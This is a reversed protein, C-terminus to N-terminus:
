QVRLLKGVTEDTQGISNKATVKYLYVGNAIQDGFRDRGDWQLKLDTGEPYNFGAYGQIPGIEKIMRGSATFIKIEISADSSLEFTFNTNEKFPNPWNLVDDLRLEDDSEIVEFDAEIRKYNNSNDWGWVEINHKGTKLDYLKRESIGRTYSDRNYIFEETMSIELTGDIIARIDHGIEGTLNVGNTDFMEVFLTPDTTVMDGDQWNERDFYIRVEPPTTDDLSAPIVSIAVSDKAGAADSEDNYAYVQIWGSSAGLKVDRPVIFRTELNGDITSVRGRFITGGHVPYDLPSTNVEEHFIYTLTDASDFVTIIAEGNFDDVPDGSTSLIAGGITASSLAILSDPNISTIEAGMKPRAPTLTPDGLCHYAKANTSFSNASKALFLSEGLTKPNERDFFNQYFANSFNFNADPGTKRTAAIIAIAGNRDRLMIEPHSDNEARDFHGWSCTAAVFIPLKDGCEILDNDRTDLLVTEHCWVHANGHGVFGVLLSGKNINEILERTAMPKRRSGSGPDYTTPYTGIYIRKLKMYGPLHDTAFEEAQQIHKRDSPLPSDTNYEDDALITMRTRWAGMEAENDYRNLKDLYIEVDKNSHATIRGSIMEPRGSTFTVFWDDFCFSGSEYVPIWNKDSATMINRYDYDGDGIYFVTSPLPHAWSTSTYKLFDRIATPDFLGWSFERYVDEIDVVIINTGDRDELYTELEKTASMFDPHTIIICDASLTNDRLGNPYEPAGFGVVQIKLPNLFNGDSIAIMRRPQSIQSEVRITDNRSYKVTDFDQVDFIYPDTLGAISVELVGNETFKDFDIRGSSTELKRYYYFNYWDFLTRSETYFSLVNSGTHALGQEIDVGHVSSSLRFTDVPVNNLSLRGTRSSNSLTKIGLWLKTPRTIDLNELQFSISYTSYESMENSYWKIGSELEQENNYIRTDNNQFIRAMAIDTHFVVDEDTEFSGMRRGVVSQDDPINLWYVNNRTYPNETHRFEGSERKYWSTVSKGYFLIQDDIDFIGDDEGEILIANERLSQDRNPEHTPPVVGGGNNYLRISRPDVGTLDIPIDDLSLSYIGEQQVEMRIMRGEPWSSVEDLSLASGRQVLSWNATAKPNLYSIDILRDYRATVAEKPTSYNIRLRLRKLPLVSGGQDRVTVIYLGTTWYNRYKYPESLVVPGRNYLHDVNFLDSEADGVPASSLHSDGWVIEEVVIEPLENSPLGLSKYVFPTMPNGARNDIVGEGPMYVLGNEVSSEVWTPFTFEVVTYSPSDTIIRVAASSTAAVGMILLIAVIINLRRLAPMKVGFFIAGVM